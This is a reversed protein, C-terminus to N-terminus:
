KLSRADKEDATVVSVDAGVDVLKKVAQSNGHRVALQLSTLGEADHINLNQVGYKM